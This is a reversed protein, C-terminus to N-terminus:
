MRQFRLIIEKKPTKIFIQQDAETYQYELKISSNKMIYYQIGLSVAHTKLEYNTMYIGNTIFGDPDNISDVMLSLKLDDTISLRIAFVGSYFSAPKKSSNKKSNSQMAYDVQGILSIFDSIKWSLVLDNFIHFYSTGFNEGEDGIENSYTLNFFNSPKYYFSLGVSKNSNNASLINYSNHVSVQYAFKPSLESSYRIGLINGPQCYSAVSINTFWNDIGIGEFGFSSSIYGFDIWSSKGIKYGFYAKKITRIAQKEVPTLLHPIDGFHLGGASRFTEGNHQM